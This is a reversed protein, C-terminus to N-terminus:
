KNRKNYDAKEQQKRQQAKENENLPRKQGSQKDLPRHAMEIPKRRGETPLVVDRVKLSHIM